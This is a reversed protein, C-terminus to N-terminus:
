SSPQAAGHSSCVQSKKLTKQADGAGRGGTSSPTTHMRSSGFAYRPRKSPTNEDEEFPTHPKLSTVWSYGHYGGYMGACHTGSHEQPPLGCDLGSTIDASARLSGEAWGVRLQSVPQQARRARLSLLFPQVPAQLAPQQQASINSQGARNAARQATELSARELVRRDRQAQARPQEADNRHTGSCNIQQM